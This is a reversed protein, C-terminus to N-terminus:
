YQHRLRIPMVDNPHHTHSMMKHCVLVILLSSTFPILDYPHATFSLMKPKCTNYIAIVYPPKIDYPNPANGMMTQCVLVKAIFLSLTLHYSTM